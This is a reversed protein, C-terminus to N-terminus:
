FRGTMWKFHSNIINIVPILILSAIVTKLIGTIWGYSIFSLIYSLFILILFHLAYVILSNQGYYQLIRSNRLLHSFGVAVYIGSFASVYFLVYNGLVCSFLDVNTKMHIFNVYTSIIFLLAALMYSIVGSKKWVYNKFCYGLVTFITCYLVIDLSWPLGQGYFHNILLGIIALIISGIIMYIKKYLLKHLWYVFLEVLFLAPLFWLSGPYPQHRTNIFLGVYRLGYPISDDHNILDHVTSYTSLILGFVLCPFLLSKAKQAVFHKFPVDERLIFLGSLFFFLPMHFAGILIREYITGCAHGHVVLLIGIGKAVDAEICRKHVRTIDCENAKLM